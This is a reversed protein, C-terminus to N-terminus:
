RTALRTSRVPVRESPATPASGPLVHLCKPTSSARTAGSSRRATSRNKASTAVLTAWRRGAYDVLAAAEPQLRMLERRFRTRANPTVRLVAATGEGEPVLVGEEILRFLGKDAGEAQVGVEPSPRLSIAPLLRRLGRRGAEEHLERLAQHMPWRIRAPIVDPGQGALMLGLLNELKQQNIQNM